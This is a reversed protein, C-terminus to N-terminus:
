RLLSLIVALTLFSGLTTALVASSVFAPRANFESAIVTAGVATPMSSQIIAVRQTLGDLGLLQAVGFALLPAALLRMGCAALLMVDSQRVRAQALEIGLLTLMIPVAAGAMLQIPRMVSEPIAPGLRHALLGAAVAYVIPMKLFSTLANLLGGSRSTTILVGGVYTVVLTAIYYISARGVAVTGFAFQNLAIGYNGANVCMASLILASGYSPEFAVCRSFLSGMGALLGAMIWAFAVLVVADGVRIDSQALASLVYAPLLVYM